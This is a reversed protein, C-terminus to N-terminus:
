SEIIKQLTKQQVEPDLRKQKLVPMVKELFHVYCEAM